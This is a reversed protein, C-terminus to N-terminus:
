PFDPFPRIGLNKELIAPHVCNPVPRNFVRVAKLGAHDRSALLTAFFQM